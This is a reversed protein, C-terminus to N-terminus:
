MASDDARRSSPFRLSARGQWCAHDAGRLARKRLESTTAPVPNSGTYAFGATAASHAVTASIAAWLAAAATTPPSGALGATAATLTLLATGV